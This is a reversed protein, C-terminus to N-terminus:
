EAQEETEEEDVPAEGAEPEGAEGAEPTEPSNASDREFAALEAEILGAPDLVGETEQAEAAAETDSSDSVASEDNGSPEDVNAAPAAPKAIRKPARRRVPTPRAVPESAHIQRILAWFVPDTRLTVFGQESHRTVVEGLKTLLVPLPRRRPGVDPLLSAKVRVMTRRFIEIEQATVRTARGLARAVTVHWEDHRRNHATSARDSEAM